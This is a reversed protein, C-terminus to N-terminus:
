AVKATERHNSWWRHVSLYQEEGCCLREDLRSRCKDHRDPRQGASLDSTSLEGGRGDGGHEETGDEHHHRCGIAREPLRDPKM